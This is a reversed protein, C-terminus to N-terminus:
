ENRKVDFTGTVNKIRWKAFNEDAELGIGKLVEKRTTIKVPAETYIRKKEQDWVLHETNLKEGKTNVVVVNKRAEMKKTNEYRIAYESTMWSSINGHEDYFDLHMGVPFVVRTTSDVYRYVLPSKLKAKMMASDSYLMEVNRGKELPEGSKLVPVTDIKDGCSFFLFAFFIVIFLRFIM